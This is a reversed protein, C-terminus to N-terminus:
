GKGKLFFYKSMNFRKNQLLKNVHACTRENEKERRLHACLVGMRMRASM